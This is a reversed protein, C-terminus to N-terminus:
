GYIVTKVRMITDYARGVERMQGGFYGREELIPRLRAALTVSAESLEEFLLKRREIVPMAYVEKFGAELSSRDHTGFRPL